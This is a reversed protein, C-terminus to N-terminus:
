QPVGQPTKQHEGNFNTLGKPATAIVKLGAAQLKVISITRFLAFHRFLIQAVSELYNPYPQKNNNNLNTGM